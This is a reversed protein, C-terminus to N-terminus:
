KNKEEPSQDFHFVAAELFCSPAEHTSGEREENRRRKQRNQRRRRKVREREREREKYEKKRERKQRQGRREKDTKGSRVESTGIKNERYIDNM